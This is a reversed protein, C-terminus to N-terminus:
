EDRGFAQDRARRLARILENVQYRDLDMWQGDWAPKPEAGDAADLWESDPEAGEALRTTAIQVGGDRNWGIEFRRQQTGDPRANEYYSSKPM